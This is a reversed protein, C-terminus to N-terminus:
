EEYDQAVVFEKGCACIVTTPFILFDDKELDLGVEEVLFRKDEESLEKTSERSYNESHCSPCVWYYAPYARVEAEPINRLYKEFDLFDQNESM